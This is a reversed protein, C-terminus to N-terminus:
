RIAGRLLKIRKPAAVISVKPDRFHWYSYTAIGLKLRKQPLAPRSGALAGPVCALAAWALGAVQFFPAAASKTGIETM